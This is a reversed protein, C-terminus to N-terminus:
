GRNEGDLMRMFYWDASGNPGEHRYAVAGVLAADLTDFSRSTDKGDIFPHFQVRGHESYDSGAFNSMDRRYEVIQYPGVEHVQDIPGWPFRDGDPGIRPGRLREPRQRTTGEPNIGTM